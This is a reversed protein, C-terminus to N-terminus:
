LTPQLDELRHGSEALIDACSVKEGGAHGSRLMAETLLAVRCGFLFPVRNIRTKGHLLKVFNDCPSEPYAAPRQAPLEYYKQRAQDFLILKDGQFSLTGRSGVIRVDDVFGGPIDSLIIIRGTVGNALEVAFSGNTEVQLRRGRYFSDIHGEASVPVTDLMWLLIDQYHSGSDNIQGGGSLEPIGRWTPACWDQAMYVFFHSVDGIVGKRIAERAKIFKGEYHRQYHILGVKGSEQMLRTIELARAAGCVMPKEILVHLGKSIAYRVHEYHPVHPTFIGVADLENEDILRKYDQDGTYRVFDYGLRGALRDLHEPELDVAATVRLGLPNGALACIRATGANGAGIAGFRLPRHLAM